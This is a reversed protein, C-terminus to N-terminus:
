VRVEMKLLGRIATESPNEPRVFDFSLRKRLAEELGPLLAGGGTLLVGRRAVLSDVETGLRSVGEEITTKLLNELRDLPPRMVEDFDAETLQVEEVRGSQESFGVIKRQPDQLVEEAQERGLKLGYVSRVQHRLQAVFADGAAGDLPNRGYLSRSCVVQGEKLVGAQAYTAGVVLVACPEGASDWDAGTAHAVLEDVLTVKGFGAAWAASELGVREYDAFQTPMTLLVSPQLWRAILSDSEGWRWGRRPGVQEQAWKLLVEVWDPDAARGQEMPCRVEINDPTRELAGKAEEGVALVRHDAAAIMVVSRETRVIKGDVAVRMESAGLDICYHKM